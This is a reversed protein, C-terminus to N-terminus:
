RGNSVFPLLTRYAFLPRAVGDSSAASETSDTALKLYESAVWGSGAGSSVQVWTHGFARVPGAVITVLSGDELQTLVGQDLGPGNRLNLSDGDAVVIASDGPAFQRAVPAPRFTRVISPLPNDPTPFRYIRYNLNPYRAAAAAPDYDERYAVMGDFNRNSDWGHFLGNGAVEAIMFTHMGPYDADPETYNDDAIQIIDGPEALDIPVEIAGSDLYGLRYDFGVEIGLAELVVMKMFMWCEGQYTGDYQSATAVLPHLKAGPSTQALVM